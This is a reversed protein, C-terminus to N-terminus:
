IITAIASINNDIQVATWMFVVIRKQKTIYRNVFRDISNSNSITEFIDLTSQKDELYVFDIFLKNILEDHSYGLVSCMRENAALVFGDKDVLINCSRAKKWHNWFTKVKTLNSILEKIELKSPLEDKM